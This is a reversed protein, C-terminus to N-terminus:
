SNKAQIAGLVRESTFPIETLRVGVANYIANAIAPIPGNINIEAVSKAGFPGSPEYSEVLISKIPPFDRSSFIKYDSFSGNRMRGKEDFDYEETLAYSIGNLVAGEVQGEALLPHVAVGCDVACVYDLVKVHGTETDVEVEVFHASFPPPSEPSYFSADAVPHRQNQSYYARLAIKDYALSKGSKSKVHGDELYLESVDIGLMEGAIEKVIERMKYSANKVAGGSIYTTSSAYAGVDFPTHDTDSSIVQIKKIDVELAEACIQSLVTDSGTGIDTAGVRLQFSGDENMRVTAAAMDIEPIGSGQMLTCMGVGRVKGSADPKKPDRSFKKKWGFTEAGQDICEALKCSKLTQEVGEKGEGLMAFIPSTEGERIHNKRRLDCPDINLKEALEDMCCELAFYGQTGGYGRYAGGVPYNTYAAQALFYYSKGKNYLPLTKSGANCVVTLAHTGYAGSNSLARLKVATVNGDKDAGISCWVVHPHRTRAFTFEESRTMVYRCPKGTRMTIAGCLYELIVEQKAGFGGGVRPKIVRIDKIDMDLVQATIRRAHFPVQTATRVVLRSNEDLYTICSHPELPCHQAYGLDYRGESVHASDKLTEDVNGVEIEVNAALNREVDYIGTADEQDHITPANGTIAEEVDFVPELVEYEVKIKKAADAAQQETKAAIMAVKDGVYRVKNDFLVTDYPSPEPYGQGATTHPIRKTNGYHLIEAVGPMKRAESDDISKIRAHAHPSFIFKAYLMHPLVMDDVYAPMGTVLGHGDVKEINHGVTKFQKPDLEEYLPMGHIKVNPDLEVGM